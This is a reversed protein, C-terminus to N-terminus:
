GVRRRTITVVYAVRRFVGPAPSFTQKGTLTFILDAVIQLYFMLFFASIERARWRRIRHFEEESIPTVPRGHGTDAAFTGDALRVPDGKRIDAFLFAFFGLIAYAIVFKMLLRFWQPNQDPLVIGERKAREQRRHEVVNALMMVLGFLGYFGLIGVWESHIWGQPDCGLWTAVHVVVNVILGVVALIAVAWM